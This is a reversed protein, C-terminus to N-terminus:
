IKEIIKKVDYKKDTEVVKVKHGKEKAETLCVEMIEAEINEDIKKKGYKKKKMRRDLEKQNCRTVICMDVLKPSIVHSMHSDIVLDEDHKKIYDELAKALKKEDVIITDRKPDKGESLRQGKIIKEVDVYRFGLKAIKKALTTKGTGPTGTVIIVKM